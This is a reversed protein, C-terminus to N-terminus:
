SIFLRTELTPHRMSAIDLLPTFAVVEFITLPQSREVAALIAPKLMWLLRSAANQGLPLLRQCASILGTLSQQLYAATAWEAPISLTAATLGFATCHHVNQKDVRLAERLLPQDAQDDLDIGLQLFRRGLTLSAVRSERATKLASM